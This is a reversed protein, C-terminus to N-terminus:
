FKHECGDDAAPAAPMSFNGYGWNCGSNCRGNSCSRWLTNASSCARGCAGCNDVNKSLDMECGDNGGPAPGTKDCDGWGANCTLVCQGAQCQGSTVHNSGCSIGCGGCNYITPTAIPSECGDDAAPSAPKNCNEFGSTCVPVCTATQCSTSTAHATSCARGCAGCNATDSTVHTECGNSSAPPAPSNCDAWGVECISTCAGGNCVAQTAHSTNCVGNCAGCHLPDHAVDVECGNAPSADCDSWGAECGALTCTGSSCATMAHPLACVAGCSGCNQVTHLDAECGDASQQNCDEWGLSCSSVKCEGTACSKTTSGVGVCVVGCTGCNATSKLSAECGDTVLGNCDAFGNLCSAVTCAGNVCAAAGNAVDCAKYCAGCSQLSGLNAECGDAVDGNCDAFGGNCAGIACAEAQCVATANASPCPDCGDSGCGTAPDDMKVCTSGCPKTGPFCNPADEGPDGSPDTLPDTSTDLVKDSVVDLGVEASVDANPESSADVVSLGDASGDLTPLDSAEGHTNLSCGVILATALLLSLSSTDRLGPSM